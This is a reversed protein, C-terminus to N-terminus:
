NSEFDKSSTQPVHGIFEVALTLEQQCSKYFFTGTWISSEKQELWLKFFYWILYKIRPRQSNKKKINRVNAYSITSVLDLIFIYICNHLYIFLDAFSSMTFRIVTFFVAVFM